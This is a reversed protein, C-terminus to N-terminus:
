PAPSEVRSWVNIERFDSGCQRNSSTTLTEGSLQYESTGSCGDSNRRFFLQTASATWTGTEVNSVDDVSAALSVTRDANLILTGSSESFDNQTLVSGDVLYITFGVLSYTGLLVSDDFDGSGGSQDGGCSLALLSGLLLGCIVSQGFSM